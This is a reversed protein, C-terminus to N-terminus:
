FWDALDTMLEGSDEGHFNKVGRELPIGFELLVGGGEWIKDQVKFISFQSFDAEAKFKAKSSKFEFMEYM